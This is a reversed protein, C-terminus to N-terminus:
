AEKKAVPAFSEEFDIGEEKRFEQAVLGVKNKLVGGFEDTKVKYIWKLKILFVRDLCPVLEWVQLREFEYIEEQMWSPKTRAQKFNNLEVSTPFTDFFCWMSDTQLQKRTSVSRSPNGIVNAIPHDKAWRGVLEFPTHTQRMYSSSGQSTSDEHLSEHLPDDRFTPTKPSKPSPADQDVTTSSPSGTSEAPEPALNRRKVVGNQQPSRAFSTEHSISVKEYYERLTPNVFETGNDTRLCKVWTLRYYDNVIVLIYKKRNVSAVCMPVCLDIHLLYLKEQNTDESKPKHPKKKSKGMACASCLHYKKFKLKSLGRVLGHRALHNITGFNLHSLRRHWLWSKTKSAKSLFCIPSSAMM